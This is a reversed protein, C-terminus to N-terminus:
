HYILFWKLDKEYYNEKLFVVGVVFLSLLGIVFIQRMIMDISSSAASLLGVREESNSKIVIFSIQKLVNPNLVGLLIAFFCFLLIVSNKNDKKPFREVFYQNDYPIGYIDKNRYVMMHIVIFASMFILEYCMLAIAKCVIGTEACEYSSFGYIPNISQFGPLVVYRLFMCFLVINVTISKKCGSIFIMIYCMSFCLPLYMMSDYYQPHNLFCIFFSIISGVLYIMEFITLSINKIKFEIM